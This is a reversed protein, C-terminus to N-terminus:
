VCDAFRRETKRFYYVAFTFLCLASASSILLYSVNLPAGLIVARYADIIGYMPNLSLLWGFPPRVVPIFVPTMYMMIQVLFPVLHRFDRYFLTLAALLIGISLTGLLTMFVLAPLFISTWSPMVGYLPLILAFYITLSYIVDVLFVSAAAVPLFIRPFYVKTLMHNNNILSLASQPMGQSFITWPILGAFVFVQYPLRAGNVVPTEINVFRAVLTFIGMLLLPQLIAWASGLVTQKYRASIDRWILFLLLERYNYLEKWDIPIWGTQARILIEPAEDGAENDLAGTPIPEPVLASPHATLTPKNETEIM